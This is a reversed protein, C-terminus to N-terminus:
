SVIGDKIEYIKVPGDIVTLFEKHTTTIFTQVETLRNFLHRQRKDDLESFVDDLLLVPWEDTKEKLLYIESFKLTLILSRWEGRSSYSAMSKGNCLFLLDDRHPGLQTYGKQIDKSRNEAILQLLEEKSLMKKFSPQYSIKLRDAGDTVEAYFEASRRSLDAVLVARKQTISLTLEVWEQDWFDLQDPSIKKVEMQRLLSNRRSLVQQYRLFTQLYDRDFQSLLLDLYRRRSAPASHIMNMDDPSFFVVNLHGIYDAANKQVGNIKLGKKPPNKMMVVELEKADGAREYSIKTSCFGAYDRLDDSEFAVVQDMKRTRFSKSIATLFISELLNTKGHGNLGVFAYTKVQPDFSLDLKKLNRFGKLQLSKIYM